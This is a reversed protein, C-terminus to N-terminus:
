FYIKVSGDRVAGTSDIYGVLHGRGWNSIAAHAMPAAPRVM